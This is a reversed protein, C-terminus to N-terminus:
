TNLQFNILQVIYQFDARSCSNSMIKNSQMTLSRTSILDIAYKFRSHSWPVLPLLCLRFLRFPFRMTSWSWLVEGYDVSFARREELTSWRELITTLVRATTRRPVSAVITWWNAEPAPVGRSVAATTPDLQRALPARAPCIKTPRGEGPRGYTAAYGPVRCATRTVNLATSRVATARFM